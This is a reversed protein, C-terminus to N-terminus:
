NVKNAYSSSQVGLRRVLRIVKGEISVLLVVAQMLSVLALKVEEVVEGFVRIM